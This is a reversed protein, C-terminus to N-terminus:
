AHLRASKGRRRARRHRAAAAGPRPPVPQTSLGLTWAGAQQWFAEFFRVDDETQQM